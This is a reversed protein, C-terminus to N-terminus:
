IEVLITDDDKLNYTERFNIDSVVEIINLPHDGSGEENKETRLICAPHNNIKCKKVLVQFQGGYEEKEIIIIDDILNYPNELEINLTGPFVTLGTKKKLIDEAKKVWFWADGLGSKVTGELIM